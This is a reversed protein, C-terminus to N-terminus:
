LVSKYKKREKQFLNRPSRDNLENMKMYAKMLDEPFEGKYHMKYFSYGNYPVVNQGASINIRNQVNKDKFYALFATEREKNLQRYKTEVLTGGLLRNCKDQVTFLMSDATQKNLYSVFKEDKISMKDVNGADERSFYTDTKSRNALFYKKKAEFLLISEKEKETYLQPSVTITAAPNEVLFKAMREAFREQQGTLSSSRMEWKLTLSKEIETETSKVEMRYPTTAPKVFINGIVDMIVDHLHFKPDKLDGSIPVEYDIVNGRERVFAMILRMPLHKIDKTKERKTLRPDILV